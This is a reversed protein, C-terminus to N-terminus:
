GKAREKLNQTFDEFTCPEAESAVNKTGRAMFKIGTSSMIAVCVHVGIKLDAQYVAQFGQDKIKRMVLTKNFKDWWVYEPFM